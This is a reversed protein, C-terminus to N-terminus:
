SHILQQHTLSLVAATWDNHATATLLQYSLGPVTLSGLPLPIDATPLRQWAITIFVHSHVSTHTYYHVTFQLWVRYWVIWYIWDDIWFRDITVSWLFFTVICNSRSTQFTCPRASNVKWHTKKSGSKNWIYCEHKMEHFQKASIIKTATFVSTCQSYSSARSDWRFINVYFIWRITGQLRVMIKSLGKRTGRSKHHNM